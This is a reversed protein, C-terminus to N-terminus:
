MRIGSSIAYNTESNVALLLSKLAGALGKVIYVWTSSTKKGVRM